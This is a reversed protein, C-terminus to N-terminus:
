RLPPRRAGGGAAAARGPAGGGGGGGGGAGGGGAPRLAALRADSHLARELEAFRRTAVAEQRGLRAELVGIRLTAAGCYAEFEAEAERDHDRSRSFAQQRRLLRENEDDLRRQIIAVRDLLREKVCARAEREVRSAEKDTLRAADAPKVGAIFPALLDAAAVAALEGGAAPGGGDGGGGDDDGDRPPGRLPEGAVARAHAVEVLSAELVVASRGCAAAATTAAAPSQVGRHGGAATAAAAAAAAAACEATRVALLEAVLKASVRVACHCARERAVLAALQRELQQQQQQQPVEQEEQEEQELTVILPDEALTECEPPPPATATAAASPAVASGAPPAGAAKHFRRVCRLVRGPAPHYAVTITAADLNYVVRELCAHAPPCRLAWDDEIGDDDDDDDDDDDASAAPAGGPPRRVPLAYRETMKHLQVSSGHSGGGSSDAATRLEIMLPPLTRAADHAGGAALASGISGISGIGGISGGGGVEAKAPVFSASRYWCQQTPM